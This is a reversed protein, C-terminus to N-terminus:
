HCPRGGNRLAGRRRTPTRAHGMQNGFLGQHMAGPLAPVTIADARAAGALDMSLANFAQEYLSYIQEPLGGAAPRPPLYGGLVIQPRYQAPPVRCYGHLAGFDQDPLSGSNFGIYCCIFKMRMAIEHRLPTSNNRAVTATMGICTGREAHSTQRRSPCPFLEAGLM